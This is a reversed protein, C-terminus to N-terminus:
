AIITLSFSDTQLRFNYFFNKVRAVIHSSDIGAARIVELEEGSHAISSIAM